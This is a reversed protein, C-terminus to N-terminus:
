EKYGGTSGFGEHAKMDEIGLALDCVEDIIAYSFEEFIIQAVKEGKKLYVPTKTINFVLLMLENHFDTDIIGVSNAQILGKKICLSSRSYLRAYIDEPMDLKVNLPLKKIGEMGETHNVPLITVDERLFLDFAAAGYSSKKMGKVNKDVLEYRVYTDPSNLVCNCDNM